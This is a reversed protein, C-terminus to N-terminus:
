TKISHTNLNKRILRGLSKSIKNIKVFFWGIVEKMRESTGKNISYNRSKDTCKRKLKKFQSTLENINLREENNFGM